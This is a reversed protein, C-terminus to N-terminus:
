NPVNCTCTQLLYFGDRADTGMSLVLGAKRQESILAEIAQHDDQDLRVHMRVTEWRSLGPVRGQKRTLFRRLSSFSVDLKFAECDIVELRPCAREHEDDSVFADLVSDRGHWDNTAIRPM